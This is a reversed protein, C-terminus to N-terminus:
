RDDAMRSTVLRTELVAVTQQLQIVQQTLEAVTRTLNVADQDALILRRELDAHRGELEFLREELKAMCRTAAQNFITQQNIIARDGWRAAANYWAWRLRVILGGIVPAESAFRYERLVSTAALEDWVHTM